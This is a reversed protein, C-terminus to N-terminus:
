VIQFADHTHHQTARLSSISWIMLRPLSSILCSRDKAQSKSNTNSWKALQNYKKPVNM